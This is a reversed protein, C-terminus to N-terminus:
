AREDVGISAKGSGELKGHYGYAFKQAKEAEIKAVTIIRESMRAMGKRMRELASMNEEALTLFEERMMELKQHLAKPAGKMEDKRAMMQHVGNQYLKAQEIKKDQVALFRETDVNKLAENEEQMVSRLATIIDMMEQMAKKPERSLTLAPTEHKNQDDIMVRNQARRNAM